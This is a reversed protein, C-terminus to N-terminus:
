RTEGDRRITTPDIDLHDLLELIQPDTRKGSFAGGRRLAAALLPDEVIIGHVLEPTPRFTSRLRPARPGAWGSRHPDVDANHCATIVDQRTCPDPHGATWVPPLQAAVKVDPAVPDRGTSRYWAFLDGAMLRMAKPPCHADLAPNNGSTDLANIWGDRAKNYAQAALNWTASDMGKRVVMTTRDVPRANNLRELETACDRMLNSWRGILHGLATDDLHHLVRKSPHVRAIASWNADPGLRDLLMAAVEDMPNDKGSLSFTRRVNTRAVFYAVFAAADPDSAFDDATIETVLGGRGTLAYRRRQQAQEIRAAKAALHTLAKARRVYNRRSGTWGASEADARSPLRGSLPACGILEGLEDTWRQLDAPDEPDPPVTDHDLEDFLAAITAVQKTAGVPREWDDSMMSQHFPASETHRAARGLVLRERRSLRDGLALGILSAVDEPRRRQGLSAYLEDLAVADM